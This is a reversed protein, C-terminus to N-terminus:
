CGALHQSNQWEVAKNLVRRLLSLCHYVTQPSLKENELNRRLVLYDLTTISTMKREGILPAIYNKWRGIEIIQSKNSSSALVITKYLNWADNLKLEESM